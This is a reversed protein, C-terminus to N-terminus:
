GLSFILLSNFFFFCYRVCYLDRCFPTKPEKIRMRTGRFQDHEEIVKDDWRIGSKKM